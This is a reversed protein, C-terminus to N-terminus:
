GRRFAILRIPGKSFSRGNMVIFDDLGNRDHDITTVSQGVGLRTQPIPIRPFRRGRNRNVLLRDAADTTPVGGRVAPLPGARLLYLDALEDGNVDGVGLRYARKVRRSVTPRPEFRGRRQIQLTFRKPRLIVLDLVPGRNAKVLWASRCRGPKVGRKRTVNAFRKGAVNRYLRVGDKGCVLLDVRRDRDFDVAQVTADASVQRNIGFEPVKRFSTGGENIFLRNASRRGDTRPQTNGVFLDPRRDGNADVFTAQRGRGFPDTVGYDAAREVFTGDPQQLWLENAKAGAGQNAGLTCYFDLRGDGDVDAAPCDHYDASDPGSPFASATIDAFTGGGNEYLGPFTEHHRVLLVDDWGNGTFDGVTAGYTHVPAHHLGSALSADYAELKGAAVSPGAAAALAALAFAGAVTRGRALRRLRM